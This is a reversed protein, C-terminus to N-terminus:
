HSACSSSTEHHRRHWALHTIARAAEPLTKRTCLSRLYPCQNMAFRTRFIIPARELEIRRDIRIFDACLDILADHTQCQRLRFMDFRALDSNRLLAAM